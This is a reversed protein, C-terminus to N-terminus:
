SAHGRKFVKFTASDDLKENRKQYEVIGGKVMGCRRNTIIPKSLSGILCLVTRGRVPRGADDINLSTPLLKRPPVSVIETCCVSSFIEKFLITLPGCDAVEGVLCIGESIASAASIVANTEPIAVPISRSSGSSVRGGNSCKLDRTRPCDQGIVRFVVLVVSRCLNGIFDEASRREFWFSFFM